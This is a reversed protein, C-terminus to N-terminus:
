SRHILRHAEDCLQQAAILVRRAAEYLDAAGQEGKLLAARHAKLWAELQDLPALEPDPTPETM